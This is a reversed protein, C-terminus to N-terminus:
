DNRRLWNIMIGAKQAYQTICKIGSNLVSYTRYKEQKFVLFSKAFDPAVRDIADWEKLFVEVDKLMESDFRDSPLYDLRRRTLTRLQIIINKDSLSENDILISNLESINLKHYNCYYAISYILDFKLAKAQMRKLNWFEINETGNEQAQKTIQLLSEFQILSFNISEIYAKPLGVRFLAEEDRKAIKLLYKSKKIFGASNGEVDILSNCQLNRTLFQHKRNSNTKYM